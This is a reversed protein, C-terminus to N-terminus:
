NSLDTPTIHQFSRNIQFTTSPPSLFLTNYVQTRNNKYHICFCDTRTSQNMFKPSFYM